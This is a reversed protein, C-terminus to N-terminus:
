SKLFQLFTLTKKCGKCAFHDNIVVECPTKRIGSKIRYAAASIDEFSIKIPDQCEGTLSLQRILPNASNEFPRIEEDVSDAKESSSSVTEMM